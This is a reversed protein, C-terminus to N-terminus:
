DRAARFAFFFITRVSYACLRNEKESVADKKRRKDQRDKGKGRGFLGSSFLFHEGGAKEASIQVKNESKEAEREREREAKVCFGECEPFRGSRGGLSQSPLFAGLSCVRLARHHSGSIRPRARCFIRELGMGSCDPQPLERPSAAGSSSRGPQRRQASASPRGARYRFVPETREAKRGLGAFFSLPIAFVFSFSLFFLSFLGFSFGSFVGCQAAGFLSFPGSFALVREIFVPRGLRDSPPRRNKRSDAFFGRSSDRRRSLGLRCLSLPCPVFLPPPAM